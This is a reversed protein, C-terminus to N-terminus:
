FKKGRRRRRVQRKGGNLRPKRTTTSISAPKSTQIALRQDLATILGDAVRPFIERGIFSLVPTIWLHRKAIPPIVVPTIEPIRVPQPTIQVVPVPLEVESIANVPCVQTCSGCALCTNTDIEAKGRKLSIAAVSCVELCEGCGNCIEKDVYMRM